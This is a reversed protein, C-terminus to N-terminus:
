LEVHSTRSAGLAWLGLVILLLMHVLSSILWPPGNKWVADLPSDPM